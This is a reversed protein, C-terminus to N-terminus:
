QLVLEGGGGGGGFGGGASPGAGGLGGGAVPADGGLGGGAPPGSRQVFSWIFSWSM